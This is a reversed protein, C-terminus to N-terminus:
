DESGRVKRRNAKVAGRKAKSDLRKKISSRSPKTKKRPKQVHAAKLIMQKLRELTEDKNRQQSKHSGSKIVIIGLSNLRRDSLAFLRSKILEPLSSRAVAFRLEVASNTKNVHQGGPGSARVASFEIESFPVSIQENIVLSSPTAM